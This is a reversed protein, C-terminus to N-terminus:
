NEFFCFSILICRSVYFVAWYLVLLRTECLYTIKPALVASTALLLKMELFWM